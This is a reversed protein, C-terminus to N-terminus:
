IYVKVEAPWIIQDSSVVVVVEIYLGTHPPTRHILM